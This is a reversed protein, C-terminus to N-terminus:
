WEWTVVAELYAAEGLESVGKRRLMAGLIAIAFIPESTPLDWSTYEIWTDNVQYPFNNQM